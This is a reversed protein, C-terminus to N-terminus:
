PFRPEVPQEFCSHHGGLGGTNYHIDIGRYCKEFAKPIKM